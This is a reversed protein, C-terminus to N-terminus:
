KDLFCTVVPLIVSVFMWLVSLLENFDAFVYKKVMIYVLDSLSCLDKSRYRTGILKFRNGFSSKGVWGFSIEM